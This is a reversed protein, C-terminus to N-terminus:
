CTDPPSDIEKLLFDEVLEFTVLAPSIHQIVYAYVEDATSAGLEVAEWIKSQMIIHLNNMKSM